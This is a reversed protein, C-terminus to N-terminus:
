TDTSENTEGRYKRQQREHEEALIKHSAKHEAIFSAFSLNELKKAYEYDGIIEGLRKAFDSKKM